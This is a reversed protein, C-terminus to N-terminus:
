LVLPATNLVTNIFRAQKLPTANEDIAGIKSSLVGADKKDMNEMLRTAKNMKHGGFFSIHCYILHKFMEASDLKGSLMKIPIYFKADTFGM